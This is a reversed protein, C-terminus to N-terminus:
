TTPLTLHTYSVSYWTPERYVLVEAGSPARWRYINEGDYGRCHYYRSVGGNRLIEPINRSHGFTDPEFDLNLSDESIDLLESLYKKTCLLHRAMSEGGSMNKDNEVWSSAIVEWRGEKVRQKVQDLVAPAYRELIHYVSAQSQSFKFEPYEEMLTLITRVTDITLAVTEQYGWMWNM